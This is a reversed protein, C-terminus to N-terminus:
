SCIIKHLLLVATFPSHFSQPFSPDHGVKFTVHYTEGPLGSIADWRQSSVKYGSDLVHLLTGVM